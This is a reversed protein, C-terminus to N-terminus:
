PRLLQRSAMTRLGRRLEADARRDTRVEVLALPQALAWDLAAPLEEPRELRRGAVGYAAALALQDLCQPM